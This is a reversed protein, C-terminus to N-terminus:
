RLNTAQAGPAARRRGSWLALGLGLGALALSGPEPVENTPLNGTFAYQHIQNGVSNFSDVIVAGEIDGGEHKFAAHSALITGGFQRGISVSSAVNFNWVAAHALLGTASSALFNAAINVASLDSNFIITKASGLNFEFEGMSFVSAGLAGNLNFVARGDADAVAKFVAKGGQITVSSNSSLAALQSSLGNMVARMDTSGAASQANQLKDQGALSSVKGSNFNTGSSSGEVFAAGSGNFSVNSTSGHVVGGGNNVSANSLGGGVVVGVSSGGNNLVKGGKLDANGGVTLAAYNSAPLPDLAFELNGNQATLAGGVYARGHVHTGSSANGLAVVNFQQLVQQGSLPAFGASAPASWALLTASLALLSATSRKM